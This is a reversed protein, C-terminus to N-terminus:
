GKPPMGITIKKKETFLKKPLFLAISFHRLTLFNPIHVQMTTPIKQFKTKSNGDSTARFGFLKKVM